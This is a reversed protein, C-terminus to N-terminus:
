SSFPNSIASKSFGEDKLFYKSHSSFSIGDIDYKYTIVKLNPADDILYVWDGLNISRGIITTSYVVRLKPHFREIYRKIGSLYRNAQIYTDINVEGRKLEIVEIFVSHQTFRSLTVLDAIGYNGIKV